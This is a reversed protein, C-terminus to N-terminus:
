DARTYHLTQSLPTGQKNTVTVTLDAKDGHFVIACDLSVSLTNTGQIPGTVSLEVNSDNIFHYTGTTRKGNESTVFTGDKRYEVVSQKGDVNWTGLIQQQPTKKCSCLILATTLCVLLTGTLSGFQTRTPSRM